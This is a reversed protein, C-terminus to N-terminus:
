GLRPLIFYESYDGFNVRLPPSSHEAEDGPDSAHVNLFRVRDGQRITRLSITQDLILLPKGNLAFWCSEVKADWSSPGRQSIMIAQIDIFQSTRDISLKPVNKQQTDWYENCLHRVQCFCCNDVVVSAKPPMSKISMLAKTTREKMADEIAPYDVHGPAPIEIDNKLYSIILRTVPRKLPNLECDNLWLLAYTLLQFIHEEKEKGAKFDRIECVDSSLTLFDVFGHWGLDASKIELESYIGSSLPYRARESIPPNESIGVNAFRDFNIRALLEQSKLRLEPIDAQLQGHIKKLTPLARPNEAYQRLVVEITKEILQTFGGLNRLAQSIRLGSTGDGSRLTFDEVISNIVNHVITGKLAALNPIRPYGSGSWIDPYRAGNLAWRKPCVELDLLTSFSM